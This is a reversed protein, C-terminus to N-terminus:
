SVTNYCNHFDIFSIDGENQTLLQKVLESDGYDIEGNGITYIFLLVCMCM